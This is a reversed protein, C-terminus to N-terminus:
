AIGFAQDLSFQPRVAFGKEELRALSVSAFYRGPDAKGASDAVVSAVIREARGTPDESVCTAIRTYLPLRLDPRTGLGFRRKLAEVISSTDM